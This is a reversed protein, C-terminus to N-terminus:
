PARRPCTELQGTWSVDRSQVYAATARCIVDELVLQNLAGWTPYSVYGSHHAIGTDLARTNWLPEDVAAISNSRQQRFNGIRLQTNLWKGPDGRPHLHDIAPMLAQKNTGPNEFPLYGTDWRRAGNKPSILLERAKTRALVGDVITCESGTKTAANDYTTRPRTPLNEQVELEHTTGVKQTADQPYLHGITHSRERSWEGSLYKHVPFLYATATDCAIKDDAREKLDPWDCAATLSLYIPRQHPSFFGRRKPSDVPDDASLGMHARLSRQMDTWKTAEAA